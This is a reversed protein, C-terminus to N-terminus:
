IYFLLYISKNAHVESIKNEYMLNKNREETLKNELEIIEHEYNGKQSSQLELKEKDRSVEDLRQKM